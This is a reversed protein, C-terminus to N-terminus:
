GTSERLKAIRRSTKRRFISPPKAPPRMSASFIGSIDPKPFFPAPKQTTTEPIEKKATSKPRRKSLTKKEVSLLWDYYPLDEFTFKKLRWDSHFSFAKKKGRRSFIDPKNRSYNVLDSLWATENRSFREGAVYRWKYPKGYTRYCSAYVRKRATYLENALRPCYGYKFTVRNRHLERSVTSPSRNITQAIKRISFGFLEMDHIIHRELASLHRYLHPREASEKVPM